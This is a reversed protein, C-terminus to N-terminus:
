AVAARSSAKELAATMRDRQQNSSHWFLPKRLSAGDYDTLLKEGKARGSERLFTLAEFDIHVALSPTVIFRRADFLEHHSPCFALGNWIEDKGDAERAPIIHAAEVIELQVECLACSHDFQEKVRPRFRADRSLRTAALRARERAVYDEVQASRAPPPEAAHNPVRSLLYAERWHGILSRSDANRSVRLFHLLNGSSFAVRVESTGRLGRLEGVAWGTNRGETLLGDRVQVNASFAFDTYIRAEWGVFVGFDPSYGLLVTYAGELDLTGRASRDQGGVILQIKFEGPPRAGPTSRDPTVTWLYFRTRGFGPVVAVAPHIANLPTEFRTSVPLAARLKAFLTTNSLAPM